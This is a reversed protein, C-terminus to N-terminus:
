AANDHAPSHHAQWRGYVFFTVGPILMAVFGVLWLQECYFYDARSLYYVASGSSRGTHAPYSQSPSSVPAGRSAVQSSFFLGTLFVGLAALFVVQHLRVVWRSSSFFKSEASSM